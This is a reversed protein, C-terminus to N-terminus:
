GELKPTPTSSLGTHPAVHGAMMMTLWRHDIM